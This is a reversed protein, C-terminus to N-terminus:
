FFFRTDFQFQTDNRNYPMRAAVYEGRRSTMAILEGTLRVWDQQLSPQMQSLNGDIFTVPALWWGLGFWGLLIGVILALVAALIAQQKVTDTIRQTMNNM